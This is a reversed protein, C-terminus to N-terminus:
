LDGRNFRRYGVWLPVVVWLLFLAIAVWESLYWTTDTGLYAATGQEEFFVAIIREYLRVPQAEYVFLAWNPLEGTALGVRELAFIMAPEVVDWIVVFVFFVGFASLTAVQKSATVTSLALGIGFFIAGFLLTLGIYVMYDVAPGIGFSGFPYIVLAAAGVLGVIVAAALFLGRGLLKGVVVDRRNHPLSLLLNLRGSSREGVIANYGLLLGVLPLLLGIAGTMFGAFRNTTVAGTTTVPFIYGGILCAIVFLYTLYRIVRSDIAELYDKRAVPQWNM